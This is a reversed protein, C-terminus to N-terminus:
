EPIEPWTNNVSSFTGYPEKFYNFTATFSSQEGIVPFNNGLGFEPRNTSSQSFLNYSNLKLTAM